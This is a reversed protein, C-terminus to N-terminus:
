LIRWCLSTSPDVEMCSGCFVILNCHDFNCQGVTLIDVNAWFDCLETYIKSVNIRDQENSVKHEHKLYLICPM